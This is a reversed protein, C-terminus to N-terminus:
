RMGGGRYGKFPLDLEPFMTGRNFGREYDYTRRWRQWPVYAMAIAFNEFNSISPLGQSEQEEPVSPIIDMDYLNELDIPMGIYPDRKM